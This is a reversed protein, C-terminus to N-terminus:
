ELYTNISGVVTAVSPSFDDLPHPHTVDAGIFISPEDEAFIRPIQCQFPNYLAM